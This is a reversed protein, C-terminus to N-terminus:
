ETNKQNGQKSKKTPEVKKPKEEEAKQEGKKESPITRKATNKKPQIALLEIDFILACYPGILNGRGKEEYALEPPVFIRYKGGVKMLPIAEKWGPISKELEVMDAKNHKHTDIFETGNLLRGRYHVKVIDNDHPSKGKGQKLVLYQFGKDTTVVGVKRSNEEFFVKNKEKNKNGQIKRQKYYAKVVAVRAQKSEEKTLLPKHETYQDKIGQFFYKLNFKLNYKESLHKTLEGCQLGFAYSAKLIPTSLELPTEEESGFSESKILLVFLVVIKIFYNM